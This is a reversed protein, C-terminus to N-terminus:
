SLENQNQQQKQRNLKVQFDVRQKIDWKEALDKLGKQKQEEQVIRREFEERIQEIRQEGKVIEKGLIGAARNLHFPVGHKDMEIPKEFHKTLRANEFYNNGAPNKDKESARGKEDLIKESARKINAIKQALDPQDMKIPYVLQDPRIHFGQGGLDVQDEFILEFEQTLHSTRTNGSHRPNEMAENKWTDIVLGVSQAIASRDTATIPKNHEDLLHVSDQVHRSNRLLFWEELTKRM